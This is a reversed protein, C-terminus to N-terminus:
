RTAGWTGLAAWCCRWARSVLNFVNSDSSTPPPLRRRPRTSQLVLARLALPRTRNRQDLLNTRQDEPPDVLRAGANFTARLLRALLLPSLRQQFSPQKDPRPSTADLRSHQPIRGMPVLNHRLESILMQPTVIEPMGPQCPERIGPNRQM